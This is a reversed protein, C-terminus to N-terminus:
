YQGWVHGQEAAKRYWDAAVTQDQTVGVGDDYWSALQNQAEAYGQEASKKLWQAAVAEDREVGNGRAYCLWLRYQGVAHDQEAMKHYWFSARESDKSTGVGHEYHYGVVYQADVNGLEALRIYEHLVNGYAEEEARSIGYAYDSAIAKSYWQSALTYDNAVKLYYDGLDSMAIISGNGACSMLWSLAVELDANAVERGSIKDSLTQWGVSFQASRVGKNAANRYFTLGDDVDDAMDFQTYCDGYEKIWEFLEPCDHCCVSSESREKTMYYLILAKRYDQSVGEGRAYFGALIAAATSDGHDVAMDFWRIAEQMCPEVGDGRWYCYGLLVQAVVGGDEAFQRIADINDLFARSGGVRYSDWVACAYDNCASELNKVSDKALLADARLRAQYGRSYGEPIEDWEVYLGGGPSTTSMLAVYVMLQEEALEHYHLELAQTYYQAARAIDQDVGYQCNWGKLFLTDADKGRASGDGSLDDLHQRYYATCQLEGNNELLELYNNAGEHGAKAAKSLLDIALEHDQKGGVRTEFFLGLLVQADVVDEAAAQALLRAGRNFDQAVGHGIWMLKGLAYCANPHGKEAALQYLPIARDIDQNFGEEANWTGLLYQAAPFGQAVSKNLWKLAEDYHKVGIKERFCGALVYQAYPNEQEASQKLWLIGEADNKEVGAGDIYMTGTHAQGWTDGQEAAKLFWKFSKEENKECGKGDLYCYGLLRQAVVYGQEAAKHFWKFAEFFDQDVGKGCRYAQGLEYQADADGQEAAKLFWQLAVEKNQEVGHGNEYLLGLEFQARAHGQEAAKLFWKFAEFFDQDVGKGVMHLLGLGYLSNLDGLNALQKLIPVVEEWRGEARLKKSLVRLKDLDMEKDGTMGNEDTM